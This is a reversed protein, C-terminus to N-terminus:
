EILQAEAAERFWNKIEIEKLIKKYNSFDLNSFKHARALMRLLPEPRDRRSLARLSLLYDDRYVNPIIITSHAAIFLESNMMIRSIRGNGDIFPHVESILFMMFAARAFGPPLNLYRQFGQELTGQINEPNVFQTDGARNPKDKFKGPRVESRNKMLTFHREKILAELESYSQPTKKMENPNSVIQFTGLIDHADKPRDEPIKHDFIIEEAEEIEFITGEIYNSFYADFFAKNRFHDKGSFKEKIEKFPTSKLAAFLLDFRSVRELDFPMQRARAKAGTSKLFESMQTGLLAGIMKNLKKFERRWSLEKSIEEAQTRLDKLSQEGKIQLLMELKEELEKLSLSRWSTTKASSLNELYARATSSAKFKLFPPDDQLAQPGRIFHLTLGPYAVRRNTTSTLIINNQPSPKYELASRHSLLAQPYLHNIIQAWQSRILRKEDSKPVSTYLRPGIKRILKKKKLDTMWAEEGKTKAPYLLPPLIMKPKQPLKKLAM